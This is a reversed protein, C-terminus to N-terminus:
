GEDANRKRQAASQGESLKRSSTRSRSRTSKEAADTKPEPQPKRSSKEALELALRQEELEEASQELQTVLLALFHLKTGQNELFENFIYPTDFLDDSRDLIEDAVEDILLFRGRQLIEMASRYKNFSAQLM